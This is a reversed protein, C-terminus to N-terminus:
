KLNEKIITLAQQYDSTAFISADITTILCSGKCKGKLQPELYSVQPALIIIDYDHYVQEIEYIPVVDFQYPINLLQCLKQLGDIFVSTTIGCSCSMGIHRPQPYHILEQFFNIMFNRASLLNLMKYHLYFLLEGKDNLITEEIIYHSNYFQIIGMLHSYHFVLRQSDHADIELIIGNKEYEDKNIILWRYIIQSYVDRYFYDMMIGGRMDMNYEIKIRM